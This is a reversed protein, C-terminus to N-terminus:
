ADKFRKGGVIRVSGFSKFRQEIKRLFEFRRIYVFSFDRVRCGFKDFAVVFHFQM